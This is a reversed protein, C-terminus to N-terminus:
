DAFFDKHLININNSANIKLNFNGSADKGVIRIMYKGNKPTAFNMNGKDETESKKSIINYDSDLVVVYFNGKNIKTNDIITIKNGKDSNFGILSWKGTFGTFDFSAGDNTNKENHNYQFTREDENRSSLYSDSSIYSSSNKYIMMVIGSVAIVIMCLIILMNRKKM